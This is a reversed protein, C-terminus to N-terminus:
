REGPTLFLRKRKTDAEGGEFREREVDQYESKHPTQLVIIEEEQEVCSNAENEVEDEENVVELSNEQQQLKTNLKSQTSILGCHETREEEDADNKPLAKSLLVRETDAAAQLSVSEEDDVAVRDDHDIEDQTGLEISIQM